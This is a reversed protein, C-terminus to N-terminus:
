CITQNLICIAKTKAGADYAFDGIRNKILAIDNATLDASGTFVRQALIGNRVQEAVGTGPQPRALASAVLRGLTMPVTSNCVGNMSYLECDQAVTGDTKTLQVNYDVVAARASTAMALFVVFILKKM